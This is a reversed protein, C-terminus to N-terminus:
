ESCLRSHLDKLFELNHLQYKRIKRVSLYSVFLGIPTGIMLGYVSEGSHLVEIFSVNQYYVHISLVTLIYILPLIYLTVKNLKSTFEKSLLVIREELWMQLPQSFDSMQLKYWSLIGSFISIVAIIGLSINNLLYLVDNQRELSTVTLFILLGTGSLIGVCIILSVKNITQKAKSLLLLNLEDKSKQEITSDVSKWIKQLETNEM